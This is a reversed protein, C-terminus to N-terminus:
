KKKREKMKKVPIPYTEKSYVVEEEVEERQERQELQEGPEATLKSRQEM